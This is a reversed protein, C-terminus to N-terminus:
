ADGGSTPLRAGRWSLDARGFDVAGHDFRWARQGATPPMDVNCETQRPDDDPETPAVGEQCAHSIRAICNSRPRRMDFTAIRLAFSFSASAQSLRRWAFFGPDDPECLQRNASVGLTAARIAHSEELPPVDRRFEPTTSHALRQDCGRLAPSNCLTAALERRIGLHIVLDAAGRM